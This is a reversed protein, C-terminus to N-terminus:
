VVEHWYELLLRKALNYTDREKSGHPRSHQKLRGHAAKIDVILQHELEKYEAKERITQEM